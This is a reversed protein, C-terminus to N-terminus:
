EFRTKKLQCKPKKQDNSYDKFKELFEFVIKDSKSSRICIMKQFVNRVFHNFILFYGSCANTSHHYGNFNIFDDNCEETKIWGCKMLKFISDNIQYIAPKKATNTEIEKTLFICPIEIDLQVFNCIFEVKNCRIDYESLQDIIASLPIISQENQICRLTVLNM